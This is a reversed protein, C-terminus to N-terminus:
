QAKLLGRLSYETIKPCFNNLRKKCFIKKSIVISLTEHMKLSITLATTQIKTYIM